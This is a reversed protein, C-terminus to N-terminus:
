QLAARFGNLMGQYQEEGMAAFSALSKLPMSLMTAQETADGSDLGSNNEAVAAGFAQQLMQGVIPATKPNEILEGLTTSGDVVMPPTKATTFQLEGILRIDDSAHGVLVEYKGSAAYWDSMEVNYWSLDRATIGLTVTKTEGPELAVKAFGKLEKAPRGTTGAKDSVYLQVVEKGPMVGTNTVDVSVKVEGIDDMKDNPLCLNSFAFQTYSLAMVLLGASPCKRPITTAIVWM